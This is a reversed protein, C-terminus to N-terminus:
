GGRINPVSGGAEGTEGTEDAAQLDAIEQCAAILSARHEPALRQFGLLFTEGLIPPAAALAQEGRATLRTHVARRDTVSRSRDILGKAALKDLIGVVTPPSLDATQAIARSTGDGLDRVSFLVIVQPLTLGLARNIRASQIDMARAIRRMAKILTWIEQDAQM